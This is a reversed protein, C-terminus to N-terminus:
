LVHPCAHRHLASIACLREESVPRLSEDVQKAASCLVSIMKNSM